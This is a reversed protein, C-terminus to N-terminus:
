KQGNWRDIEVACLDEWRAEWGGDELFPQAAWKAIAERSVDFSVNHARLSQMIEAHMTLSRHYPILINPISIVFKELSWTVWLPEQVWRWGKVKHAECLVSEMNEIIHNMKMFQKKLKTEVADLDSIYQEMLAIKPGVLRYTPQTKSFAHLANDLDTRTDVLGKAAKLGDMLVIDEWTETVARLEQLLTRIKRHYTSETLRSPSSPASPSKIRVPSASPTSPGKFSALRSM